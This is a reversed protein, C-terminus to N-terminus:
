RQKSAKRRLRKLEDAAQQAAVRDAERARSRAADTFQELRETRANIDELLREIRALRESDNDRDVPM